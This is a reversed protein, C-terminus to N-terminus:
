EAIKKITWYVFDDTGSDLAIADRKCKQLAIAHAKDADKQKTEQRFLSIAARGILCAVYDDTNKSSAAISPTGLVTTLLGTVVIAFRSRRITHPTSGFLACALNDGCHAFLLRFLDGTDLAAVLGGGSRIRLKPGLV